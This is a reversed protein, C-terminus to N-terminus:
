RVSHWGAPKSGYLDTVRPLPRGAEKETLHRRVTRESCGIHHAIDIIHADHIRIQKIM